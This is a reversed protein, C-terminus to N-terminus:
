VTNIKNTRTRSLLQVTKGGTIVKKNTENNFYKMLKLQWRILLQRQLFKFKNNSADIM